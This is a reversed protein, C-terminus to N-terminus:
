ASKSAPVKLLWANAVPVGGMPTSTVSKDSSVLIKSSSGVTVGSHVVALIARILVDLTTISGVVPQVVKATSSTIM